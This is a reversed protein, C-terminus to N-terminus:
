ALRKRLFAAVAREEASLGGRAKGGTRVRDGELYANLIEPHIYAKRCVAPTNRICQSVEKIAQAINRKAQTVGECGGIKALSVAARVTGAWTRFDKATFHCGTTEELYRNVDSSGVSHRKGAEDLFQFLNKGPLKQCAHIIKALRADDLDVEHFVGSKGKFEFHIRKGRVHAHQTKLTSLGFSQNTRAYEENGVRILTRDLLQVICAVVKTQSLQGKRMDLRTRRRIAPLIRSFELLQTFKGGDRCERWKAHYRYQKRGRADFATAQLHGKPDPNIWVRKYAPPVALKRIRELVSVDRIKKGKPDIYDWKRMRGRRQIGPKQDTAYTLGANRAVRRMEAHHADLM